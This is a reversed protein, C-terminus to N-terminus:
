YLANLHLHLYLVNTGFRHKMFPLFTLMRIYYIEPHKIIGRLIGSKDGAHNNM